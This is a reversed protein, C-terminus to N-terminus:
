KKKFKNIMEKHGKEAEELTHYREMELDNGATDFVMTEFILADGGSFNHNLGLWVTSVIYGGLKDQNVIKYEPSELLRGWEEQTIEKGQKDYYM